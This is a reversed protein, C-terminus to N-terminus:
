IQWATFLYYKQFKRFLFFQVYLVYMYRFPCNCNLLYERYIISASVQAIQIRFDLAHRM